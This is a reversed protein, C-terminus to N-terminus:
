VGQKTLRQHLDQLKAIQLTVNRSDSKKIDGILERIKDIAELITNITNDDPLIRKERFIELIDELNHALKEINKLKLLSAGSKTSHADRFIVRIKEDYSGLRERLRLITVEINSLREATEVVYAAIVDADDHFNM